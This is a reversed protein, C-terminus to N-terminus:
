PAIRSCGAVSRQNTYGRIATNGGCNGRHLSAFYKADFLEQLTKNGNLGTHIESGLHWPDTVNVTNTKSQVFVVLLIFVLLIVLGKFINKRSSSLHTGDNHPKHSKTHM